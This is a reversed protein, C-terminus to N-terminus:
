IFVTSLESTRCDLEESGELKKCFKFLEDNSSFFYMKDSYGIGLRTIRLIVDLGIVNDTVRKDFTIWVDVGTLHVNGFYFDKIYFKYYTVNNEEANILGGVTKTECNNAIFDSEVLNCSLDSACICTIPAGTDYVASFSVFKSKVFNCQVIISDAAEDLSM